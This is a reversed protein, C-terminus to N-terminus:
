TRNWARIARVEREWGLACVAATGLVLHGGLMVPELIWRAGFARLVHGHAVIAVDGEGDVAAEAAEAVVRDVRESVDRPSEGEPCGDRWLWWGPRDIRIDDTTVGEYAGYDWEMIEDRLQLRDDALGALEATERARTLPSCLVTTFSWEALREPLRRAYERGEDLLPLDTRGTHKRAKSWATEAHRVLVVEGV